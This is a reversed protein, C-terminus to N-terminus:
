PEMHEARVCDAFFRVSAPSATGAEVAKAVADYEQANLVWKVPECRYNDRLQQAYDQLTTKLDDHEM